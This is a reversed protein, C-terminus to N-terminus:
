KMAGGFYAEQVFHNKRVKEPTDTLLLEGKSLVSIRDAYNFVIDMDHEIFIVTFGSEAALRRVLKMIEYGEARAVGATPEDLMLLKPKMALTIAIELRRQDGYSMLAAIEDMKDEMGVMSLVQLCEDWLYRKPKPLMDYTKGMRKILAIRINEFCSLASFLKSIQFSKLIGANAIDFPKMGTIEKGQFYVQGESPITRKIILDMLTSKGAGNPGIIAHAEGELVQLNVRNVAKLAGFSRSLQKTELIVQSM